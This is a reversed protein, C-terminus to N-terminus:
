AGLSGAEVSEEYQKVDLPGTPWVMVAQVYADVGPSPGAKEVRDTVYGIVNVWEGVRTAEPQMTELLLGVDVSVLVNTDKPYMHGLVLSATKTNYSTVCGLFRVKEGVEHASLSSLLTLKSPNPGSYAYTKMTPKSM